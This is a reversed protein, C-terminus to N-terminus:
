IFCGVLVVEAARRGGRYPLADAAAVDGQLTIPRGGHMAGGGYLDGVDEGAVRAKGRKRRELGGGREMKGQVHSLSSGVSFM